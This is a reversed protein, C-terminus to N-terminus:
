FYKKGCHVCDSKGPTWDSCGTCERLLRIIMTNSSNFNPSVPSVCDLCEDLHQDLGCIRCLKVPYSVWCEKEEDPVLAASGHVVCGPRGIRPLHLGPASLGKSYGRVGGVTVSSCQECLAEEGEPLPLHCRQCNIKSREMGQPSLFCRLVRAWTHGLSMSNLSSLHKTSTWGMASWLFRSASTPTTYQWPLLMSSPPMDLTHKRFGM